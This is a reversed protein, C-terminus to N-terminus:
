SPRGAASGRRASRSSRPPRARRWPRARVVRTSGAAGRRDVELELLEADVVRDELSEAAVQPLAADLQHQLEGLAAVAPPGALVVQQGLPQPRLAHAQGDVVEAGAVRREAQQVLPAPVDDLDVLRRIVASSSCPCSSNPLTTRVKRSSRSVVTASPMSVGSCSAAPGAHRRRGAGPDGARRLRDVHLLQQAADPGVPGPKAPGGGAARGQPRRAVPRPETLRTGPPARPQSRRALPKEAGDGCGTARGGPGPWPVGRASGGM